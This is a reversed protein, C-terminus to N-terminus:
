SYNSLNFNLNLWNIMGILEGKLKQATSFDVDTSKKQLNDASVYKANSTYFHDAFFSFLQAKHDKQLIGREIQLRIFLGLQPVSLGVPFRRSSRHLEEEKISSHQLKLVRKLYTYQEDLYHTLENVVSIGSGIDETFSTVAIYSLRQKQTLIYEIQQRIDPTDLIQKKWKNVYYIFFEPVRFNLNILLDTLKEGDPDKLKLTNQIVSDLFQYDTWTLDKKRLYDSFTQDLIEALPADHVAVLHNALQIRGIKLQMKVEPLAFRSVPINKYVPHFYFVSLIDELKSCTYRYLLQVRNREPRGTWLKSTKHKCICDSLNTVIQFVHRITRATAPPVPNTNLDTLFTKLQDTTENVFNKWNEFDRDTLSSNFLIEPRLSHRIFSSLQKLAATM